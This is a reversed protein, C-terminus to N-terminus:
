YKWNIANSCLQVFAGCLRAKKLSAELHEAMSDKENRVVFIPVTDM